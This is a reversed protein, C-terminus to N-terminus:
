YGKPPRHADAQRVLVALDDGNFSVGYGDSLGADVYERGDRSHGRARSEIAKLSLPNGIV